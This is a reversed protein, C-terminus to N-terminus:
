EKKDQPAVNTASPVTLATSQGEPLQQVQKAPAPAPEQKLEQAYKNGERANKELSALFVQFDAKYQNLLKKATKNWAWLFGRRPTYMKVKFKREFRQMSFTLMQEDFYDEVEQAYDNMLVASMVKMQKEPLLTRNAYLEGFLGFYKSNLEQIKM